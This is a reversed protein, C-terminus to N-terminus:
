ADLSAWCLAFTWSSPINGNVFAMRLFAISEGILIEWRRYKGMYMLLIFLRSLDLVIFQFLSVFYGAISISNCLIIFILPILHVWPWQWDFWRCRTEGNEARIRGGRGKTNQVRPGGAHGHSDTRRGGGGCVIITLFAKCFSGFRSFWVLFLFLLIPNNMVLNELIPICFKFGKNKWGGGWAWFEAELGEYARQSSFLTALRDTPDSFDSWFKPYQASFLLLM